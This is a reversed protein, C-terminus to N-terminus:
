THVVVLVISLKILRVILLLVTSVSPMMPPRLSPIPLQRGMDTTLHPLLRELLLINMSVLLRLVLPVVAAVTCRRLLLWFKIKRASM